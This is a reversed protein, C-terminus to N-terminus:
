WLDAGANALVAILTAAALIASVAARPDRRRRADTVARGTVPILLAAIAWLAAALFRPNM